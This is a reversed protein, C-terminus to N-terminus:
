IFYFVKIFVILNLLFKSVFELYEEKQKRDFNDYVNALSIGIPYSILKYLEDRLEEVERM